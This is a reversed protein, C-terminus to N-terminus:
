PINTSFFPCWTIGSFPALFFYWACPAAHTFAFGLLLSAVTAPSPVGPSSPAPYFIQLGPPETSPTFSGALAPRGGGWSQCWPIRLDCPSSLWGGPLGAAPRAWGWCGGCPTMPIPGCYLRFALSGSVESLGQGSQHGM